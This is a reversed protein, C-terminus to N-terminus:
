RVDIRLHARATEFLETIGSGQAMHRDEALLQYVQGNEGAVFLEVRRSPASEGQWRFDMDLRVAARGHHDVPHSASTLGAM